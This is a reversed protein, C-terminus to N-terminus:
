LHFFARESESAGMTVTGGDDDSENTWDFLEFWADLDAMTM